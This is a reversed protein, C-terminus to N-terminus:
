RPWPAAERSCRSDDGTTRPQDAGANGIQKRSLASLDDDDISVMRARLLHSSADDGVAAVDHRQLGIDTIFGIDGVSKSGNVLEASRQVHEHVTGGRYCECKLLSRSGLDGYRGPVFHNAYRKPSRHKAAPRRQLAHDIIATACDHVNRRNVSM